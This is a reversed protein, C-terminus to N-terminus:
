KVRIRGSMFSRAHTAAAAARPLHENMATAGVHASPRSRRRAASASAKCTAERTPRGAPVSTKDLKQTNKNDAPSNASLLLPWTHNTTKSNAASRPSCTRPPLHKLCTLSRALSCAHQPHNKFQNRYTSSPLSPKRVTPNETTSSRLQSSLVDTYLLPTKLNLNSYVGEWTRKNSRQSPSYIYKYTHLETTEEKGINHIEVATDITQVAKCPIIQASGWRM